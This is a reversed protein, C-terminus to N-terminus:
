QQFFASARCQVMSQKLVHMVPSKDKLTPLSSSTKNAVEYCNNNIMIDKVGIASTVGTTVPAGSPRESIKHGLSM